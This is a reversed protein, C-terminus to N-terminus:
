SHINENASEESSTDDEDVPTDDDAPVAEEESTAEEIACSAASAALMSGTCSGFFLDAAACMTKCTNDGDCARKATSFKYTVCEAYTEYNPTSKLRRQSLDTVSEIKFLVLNGAPDKEFKNKVILESPSYIYTNGTKNNGVLESLDEYFYGGYKDGKVICYVRGYIEGGKKVPISQVYVNLDFFDSADNLYLMSSSVNYNDKLTKLDGETLFTEKNLNDDAIVENDNNCSYYFFLSFVLLPVIILLVKRM